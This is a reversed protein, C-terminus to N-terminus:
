TPPGTPCLEAAASATAAALEEYLELVRRAGADADCAIAMQQANRALRLRLADDDMIRAICAALGSADAPPCTLAAGAASWTELHGVATGVVPLGAVAAELAASPDGEHRSSVVLADAADVHARLAAFPVPEHFRVLHALDMERALRQVAGGMTDHGICDLRVDRGQQGLLAVARLLLAHNKVPRLDAVSLLRMPARPDRPRPAASPWRDRAVGLTLVEAEIGLARAQRAAAASPVTVRTAGAVAARLRVRGPLTARGGFGISPIAALDGGNLHLVVPVGLAAGALAASTGQPHMWLAHMVDINRERQLRVLARVGASRSGAPVCEIRAGLLDYRCAHAEQRLALVHLDVSRALREILALVCPIVRETGSRDVGGPVLLVVRRRQQATPRPPAAPARVRRTQMLDDCAAVLTRGIREFSLHQDFHARVQERPVPARLAEALVRGGQDADGPSFLRAVAGAATLARFAPIDTVVPTAGCALAEILAFGTSERRSSALFVDAARLLLEVDAHRLAGLLSVRARLQPDDMLGRELQPRMADDGFACLLRAAPIVDLAHRFVRLALMPDKVEALRGVWAVCPEDGLGFAQRAAMRDGPTFHSSSEPVEVIRVRPALLGAALFPEAQARATFAAADIGRLLLRATHLRPGPPVQDAHDQVLLPVVPLARRLAHVHLAFGLGHVHVVDPCLHAVAAAITLAGRRRGPVRVFHYDVGDRELRADDAAAQVVTVHAGARTVARAVDPLTPWAALLEEASRRAPDPGAGVQVVHMSM